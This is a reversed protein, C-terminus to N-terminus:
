LNEHPAGPFTLPPKSLGRSRARTDTGAAARAATVPRGQMEANDLQRSRKAFHPLQDATGLPPIFLERQVLHIANGRPPTM